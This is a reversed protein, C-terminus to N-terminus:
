NKTADTDATKEGEPLDTYILLSDNYGTYDGELITISSTNLFPIKIFLKLDGEKTALEIASNEIYEPTLNFIKDYIFPQAFITGNTKFYTDRYLPILKEDTNQYKGYLGCCMEIPLDSDIAITYKQFFKIPIMYIKYHDDRSDFCFEPLKRNGDNAGVVNIYLNNCIRNSFCNYLPMLDIGNFDRQFRLYNGFYEHTYSDYIGNKIILNKTFQPM